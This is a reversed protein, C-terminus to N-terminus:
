CCGKRSDNSNSNVGCLGIIFVIGEFVRVYLMILYSKM